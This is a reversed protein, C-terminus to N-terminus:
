AFGSVTPRSRNEQSDFRYASAKSPAPREELRASSHWAFTERCGLSFIDTHCRSPCRSLRKEASENRDSCSGAVM